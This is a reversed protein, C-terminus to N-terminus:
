EDEQAKVLKVLMAAIRELMAKATSHQETSLLTLWVYVDLQNHAFPM